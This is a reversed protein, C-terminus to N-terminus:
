APPDSFLISPRFLIDPCCLPQLEAGGEATSRERYRGKVPDRFLSEPLLAWSAEFALLNPASHSQFRCNSM